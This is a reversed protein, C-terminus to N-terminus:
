NNRLDDEDPLLAMLRAEVDLVYWRHCGPCTGLLRDPLGEDPQHFELPSRCEPCATNM